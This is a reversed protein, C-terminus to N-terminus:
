ASLLAPLHHCVHGSVFGWAIAIGIGAQAECLSGRAPEFRLRGNGGATGLGEALSLGVSSM